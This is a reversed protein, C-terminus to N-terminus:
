EHQEDRLEFYYEPRAKVIRYKGNPYASKALSEAVGKTIAIFSVAGGPLLCAHSCLEAPM